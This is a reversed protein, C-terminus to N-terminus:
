PESETVVIDGREVHIDLVAMAADNCVVTAAIDTNGDEADLQCRYEGAPLALAVDGSRVDVVISQPVAAYDFDLDANNATIELAPVALRVGHFFGDDFEATIDADVYGIDIRADIMDIEFAVGLPVELLHDFTCYKQSKKNKDCHADFSAVGDEVTFTPTGLIREYGFTHRKLAIGPREYAVADVNGDDVSIVIRDVPDTIVFTETFDVALGCYSGMALPLVALPLVPRLRQTITTM